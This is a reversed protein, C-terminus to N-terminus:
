MKLHRQENVAQRLLMIAKDLQLRATKESSSYMSNELTVSTAAVKAAAHVLNRSAIIPQTSKKQMAEIRKQWRDLSANYEELQAARDTYEHAVESIVAQRLSVILRDMVDVHVKDALRNVTINLKDHVSM